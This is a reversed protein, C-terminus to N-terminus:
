LLKLAREQEALMIRAEMIEVTAKARASEKDDFLHHGETMTYGAEPCWWMKSNEGCEYGTVQKIQHGDIVAWFQRSARIGAPALKNM